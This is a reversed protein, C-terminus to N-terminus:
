DQHPSQYADTAPLRRHKGSVLLAATWRAREVLHLAHLTAHRRGDDQAPASRGFAAADAVALRDDLRRLPGASHTHNRSHLARARVSRSDVSVVGPSFRDLDHDRQLACVSVADSDAFAFMRRASKSGEDLATAGDAVREHASREAENGEVKRAARSRFLTTYPFLTSRPPRRIM